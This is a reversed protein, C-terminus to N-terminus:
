GFVVKYKKYSTKLNQREKYEEHTQRIRSQEIEKAIAEMECQIDKKRIQLEDISHHLNKRRHRAARALSPYSFHSPDDGGWEREQAVIQADLEDCMRGFEGIMIDLQELQRRKERLQFIKLKLIADGTRM